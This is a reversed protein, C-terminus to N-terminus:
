HTIIPRMLCWDNSVITHILHPKDENTEINQTKDIWQSREACLASTLSAMWEMRWNSWLTPITDWDMATEGCLIDEKRVSAFSPTARSWAHMSLISHRTSPIVSLTHFSNSSIEISWTKKNTEMCPLSKILNGTQRWKKQIAHMVWCQLICTASPDTICKCHAPIIM